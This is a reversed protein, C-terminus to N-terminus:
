AAFARSSLLPLSRLVSFDFLNLIVTLLKM